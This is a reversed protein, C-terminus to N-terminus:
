QVEEQWAVTLSYLVEQDGGSATIQARGLGEMGSDLLLIELRYGHDALTEQTIVNGDADFLVVCCDPMGVHESGIHDESRSGKLLGAVHELDGNCHKVAEAVNQVLSVALDRQETERSIQDARVFVRVCLAAALAFVLVMVLQEMLVLSIRSKM